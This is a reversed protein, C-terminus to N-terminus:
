RANQLHIVYCAILNKSLFSFSLYNYIFMLDKELGIGGEDYLNISCLYLM